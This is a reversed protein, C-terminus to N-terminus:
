RNLNDLILKIKTADGFIEPSDFQRDPLKGFRPIIHLNNKHIFNNIEEKLAIPKGSCVNIIGRVKEQTAALSIYKALTNVDIFDYKTAGSTLPFESEGRKDASLIKTFVSHNNVDDGLIYFARLWFFNFNTKKYNILLQRLTNKAIGYNTVPNCPTNDDVKGCWYGVEHMTGMVALRSLGNEILNTLFLYHRPLDIVHNISDHVFGDRWALHICLDPRGVSDFFNNNLDFISTEIKKAKTNICDFHIDCAIVEHKLSILFDVVHRGIYGNAGTVLIRM